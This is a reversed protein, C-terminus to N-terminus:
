FPIIGSTFGFEDKGFLTGKEWKKSKLQERLNENYYSCDNGQTSESFYYGICDNNQNCNKRCAEPGNKGVPYSSTSPAVPPHLNNTIQYYKTLGSVKPIIGPLFGIEDGQNLDGFDWAEHRKLQDLLDSNYYHCKSTGLYDGTKNYRYGICNNKESCRKRCDKSQGLIINQYDSAAISPSKDTVMEFIKNPHVDPDIIILEESQPNIDILPYDVDITPRNIDMSPIRLPKPIFSLDQIPKTKPYINDIRTSYQYLYYLVGVILSILLIEILM